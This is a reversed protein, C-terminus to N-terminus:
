TGFRLNLSVCHEDRSFPRLLGARTDVLLPEPYLRELEVGRLLMAEMLLCPRLSVFKEDLMEDDDETLFDDM